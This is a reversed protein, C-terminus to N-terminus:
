ELLEPTITIQGDLVHGVLEYSNGDDASIRAGQGETLEGTWMRVLSILIQGDVSRGYLQYVYGDDGNILSGSSVSGVIARISSLTALRAGTATSGLLVKDSLSLVDALPITPLNIKIAM